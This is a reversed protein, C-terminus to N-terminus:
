KILLILSKIESSTLVQKKDRYQQTTKQETKIREGCLAQSGVFFLRFPYYHEEGYAILAM